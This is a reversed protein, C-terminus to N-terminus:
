LLSFKRNVSLKVFAEDTFGLQGRADCKYRGADAETMKKIILTSEGKSNLVKHRYGSPARLGNNDYWTIQAQPFGQAKCTIKVHKGLRGSIKKPLSTIIAPGAFM